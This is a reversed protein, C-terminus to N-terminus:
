QRYARTNNGQTHPNVEEAKPQVKSEVKPEEKQIPAKTEVNNLDVLGPKTTEKKAM